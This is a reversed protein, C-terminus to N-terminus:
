AETEGTASSMWDPLAFVDVPRVELGPLVRSRVVGDPSAVAAYRGDTLVNVVIAGADPDVVWYEPVGHDQYLAAKKILDHGRNSPSLVEVVIDPAGDMFDETLARVREARVVIIDPQVVNTESFKVDFPAGVVVGGGHERLHDEFRREIRRAVLQHRLRPSPSMVIEGYILEYRKGDDPMAQLDDYTKLQLMPIPAPLAM